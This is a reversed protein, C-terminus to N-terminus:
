VEARQEYAKLVAAKVTEYSKRDAGTLAVYAEQARGILVSQLLMTRDADWSDGENAVSKFLSFFCM